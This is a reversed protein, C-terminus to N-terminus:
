QKIVLFMLKSESNKCLYCNENFVCLFDVSKILFCCPEKM